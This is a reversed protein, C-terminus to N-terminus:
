EGDSGTWIKTADTEGKEIDKNRQCYAMLNFVVTNLDTPAEDKASLSFLYNLGYFNIQLPRISFWCKKTQLKRPDIALPILGLRQALVEDQM